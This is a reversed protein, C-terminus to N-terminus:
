SGEVEFRVIGQETSGELSGSTWAYYRVWMTGDGAASQDSWDEVIHLGFEETFAECAAKAAAASRFAIGSTGTAAGETVIWVEDAAMM